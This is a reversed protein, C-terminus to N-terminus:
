LMGQSPEAKSHVKDPVENIKSIRSDADNLKRDLDKEEQTEIEDAKTAGQLIRDNLTDFATPSPPSPAKNPSSSGQAQPPAVKAPTVSNKEDQTIERV